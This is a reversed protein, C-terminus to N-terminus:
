GYNLGTCEGFPYLSYLHRATPCNDLGVWAPDAFVCCRHEDAHAIFARRVPNMMAYAINRLLRQREDMDEARLTIRNRRQQVRILADTPESVWSAWATCIEDLEDLDTRGVPWVCSRDRRHPSYPSEILFVRTHGDNWVTLVVLRGNTHHRMLLHVSDPPTAETGTVDLIVTV